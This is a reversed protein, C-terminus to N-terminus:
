FLFVIGFVTAGALFGAIVQGRTHRHLTLRSWAMIPILSLGPLLANGGIKLMIFAFISAAAVHASIKYLFNVTSLIFLLLLGAGGVLILEIPAEFVLLLIWSILGCVFFILNPVHRQRRQFIELDTLRGRRVQYLVYFCPLVMSASIQMVVWGWIRGGGADLASLMIMLVHLVPPSAVSSVMRAARKSLTRPVSPLQDEVPTPLRNEM